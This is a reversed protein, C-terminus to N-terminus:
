VGDSILNLVHAALNQPLPLFDTVKLPGTNWGLGRVFQKSRISALTSPSHASRSRRTPSRRRFYGPVFLTMLPGISRRKRQIRVPTDEARSLLVKGVPHRKLFLIAHPRLIVFESLKAAFTFKRKRPVSVRHGPASLTELNEHKGFLLVNFNETLFKAPLAHM